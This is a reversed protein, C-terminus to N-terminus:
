KKPSPSSKGGPGDTGNGEYEEAVKSQSMPEHEIRNPLSVLAGSKKAEAEDHERVVEAALIGDAFSIVADRYLSPLDEYGGIKQARAITNVEKGSFYVLDWVTADPQTTDVKGRREEAAFARDFEREMAPTLDRESGGFVNYFTNIKYDTVESLWKRDKGLQKLRSEAERNTM